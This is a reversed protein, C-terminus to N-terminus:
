LVQEIETVAGEGELGDEHYGYLQHPRSLLAAQILNNKNKEDRCFIDDLKSYNKKISLSKSCYPPLSM